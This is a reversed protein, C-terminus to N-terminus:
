DAGAARVPRIADGLSAASRGPDDSSLIASAVAVGVAGSEVVSLANAATVGGIGIVPIGAFQARRTITGLGIAEGADSKSRTGFVPGVGLYDAGREKGTRTQEDTEPSYGIIFEDGGLRRAHELPLDDVGLHVGDAEAALAIDVRDNVLFLAVHRSTLARIECAMRLFERDSGRKARLQVSSVGSALAAEIIPLLPGAALDPDAVLYLQLSEALDRKGRPVSSV